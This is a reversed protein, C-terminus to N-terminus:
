NKIVKNEFNQVLYNVGKVIIDFTQKFDIESGYYPDPVDIGKKSSPAYDMLLKCNGKFGMSGVFDKHTRDMAIIYDFNKIDSDLLKRSRIESIKVGNKAAMRISRIDPSQGHHWGHTGASDVQFFDSLKKKLIIKKFVGEATPSRCINGTCLFLINIKKNQM